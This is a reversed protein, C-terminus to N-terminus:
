VEMAERGNINVRYLNVAIRSGPEVMGDANEGFNRGGYEVDFTYYQGEAKVIPGYRYVRGRFLGHTHEGFGSRSERM